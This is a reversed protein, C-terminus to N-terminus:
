RGFASRLMGLVLPGGLLLALCSRILTGWSGEWISSELLIAKFFMKIYSATASVWRLPALWVSGASGTDENVQVLGSVTSFDDASMVKSNAADAIGGVLALAFIGLWAVVMVFAVLYSSTGAARATWRQIGRAWRQPAVRAMFSGAAVNLRELEAVPLLQNM